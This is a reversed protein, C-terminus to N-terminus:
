QADDKIYKLKQFLFLTGLDIGFHGIELAKVEENAMLKYGEKTLNDFEVFFEEEKGKRFLPIAVADTKFPVISEPRWMKKFFKAEDKVFGMSEKAAKSSSEGTKQISDTTKKTDKKIKDILGM